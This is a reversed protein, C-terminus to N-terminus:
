AGFLIVSLITGALIFPAFAIQDKKNKRKSILLFLSAVFSVLFSIFVVTVTGQIGLFIGIVSYLKIDGFGIGNKVILRMLVFILIVGLCAILNSLLEQRIEKGSKIVEALLIVCRSVFLVALFRNPIIYHKYDIYALAWLVSCLLIRKANFIWDTKYITLLFVTVAFVTVIMATGFIFQSRKEPLLARLTKAKKIKHYKLLVASILLSIVTVGVSVFINVM